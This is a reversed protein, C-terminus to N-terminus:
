SLKGELKKLARYQIIRVNGETMNLAEATQRASYGNMFRLTVVSKMTEPLSAIAQQVRQAEKAKDIEEATEPKDDAIEIADDLPLTQKKRWHDTLKNTAIKYLWGRSHAGDFTDIKEWAKSFVDATLDEALEVDRTHALLYRFIDDAYTTYM